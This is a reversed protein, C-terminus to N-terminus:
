FFIDCTKGAVIDHEIIQYVRTCKKYYTTKYSPKIKM